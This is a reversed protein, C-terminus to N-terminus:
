GYNDESRGSTIFWFKYSKKELRASKEDDIINVNDFFDESNIKNTENAKNDRVYVNDGDYIVDDATISYEYENVVEKKYPFLSMLAFGICNFIALIIAVIKFVNATTKYGLRQLATQSGQRTKPIARDKWWEVFRMNNMQGGIPFHEKCVENIKVKQPKANIDNEDLIMSACVNNKHMLYYNGM